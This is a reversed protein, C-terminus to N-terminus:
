GATGTRPAAAAAAQAGMVTLAEIACDRAFRDDSNLARVLAPRAPEGLRVLADLANKRVWWSRDGLAEALAVATGPEGIRGLAEAAHARVFWIPDHLAAELVGVTGRDAISGLARASASRVDPEGDQLAEGLATAASADRIEGLIRAAWFRARPSGERLTRLLLPVTRAGIEICMAAIRASVAQDHRGLLAVLAEDTAQLQMRGLARAAINRVDADRDELAQLVVPVSSPVRLEGLVRVAHARAWKFGSRANRVQKAVIGRGEITRIVELRADPGVEDLEEAAVLVWRGAFGNAIWELAADRAQPDGLQAIRARLADVFRKRSAELRQAHFKHAIAAITTLGVILLVLRLTIILMGYDIM